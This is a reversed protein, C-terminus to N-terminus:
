KFLLRFVQRLNGQRPRLGMMSEKLKLCGSGEVIDSMFLLINTRSFAKGEHLIPKLLFGYSKPERDDIAMGIVEICVDIHYLYWQSLDNRM